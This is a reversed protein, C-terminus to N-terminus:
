PLDPDSRFTNTEQMFRIADRSETAMQEAREIRDLIERPMAVRTLLRQAALAVREIKAVAVRASTTVLDTVVIAAATEQRQRQGRQEVPEVRAARAPCAQSALDMPTAKDDEPQEDLLIHVAQIIRRRLSM